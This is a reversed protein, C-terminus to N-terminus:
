VSQGVLLASQGSWGSLYRPDQIGTRGRGTGRLTVKLMSNSTELSRKEWGPAPSLICVKFSFSCKSRTNAMFGRIKAALYQEEEMKHELFISAWHPDDSTQLPMSLRSERARGKVTVSSSFRRTFNGLTLHVSAGLQAHCIQLIEYVNIILVLVSHFGSKLGYCIQPQCPDDPTLSFASLRTHGTEFYRSIFALEGLLTFTGPHWSYNIYTPAAKRWTPTSQLPPFHALIPCLALM